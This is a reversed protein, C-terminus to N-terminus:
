LIKRKFVEVSSGKAIFISSPKENKLFSFASGYLQEFNCAIDYNNVQYIDWRPHAVQYEGTQNNKTKTYGWYHETIFEEETGIGIAINQLSGSTKLHNKNNGKHWYFETILTNKVANEEFLHHMKFTYYHEGYILQAMLSIAPKPVIEKVFVVGRKWKNGDFHKVYFRLNVEEFNKHFPVGIGGLKTNAFWFAVLSVYCNGNFYDLETKPPLYPKLIDPDIIYNAFVLNNWEATLFQKM